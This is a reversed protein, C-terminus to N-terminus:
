KSHSTIFLSLGDTSRWWDVSVTAWRWWWLTNSLRVCWVVSSYLTQSALRRPRGVNTSFLWRETANVGHIFPPTDSQPQINPQITVNVALMYVGNSLPITGSCSQRQFNECLSVEYCVKNSKFQFFFLFIVFESKSGGKPSNPTVYVSWRYSTPFRMTSKRAIVAHKKSARVTSVNHASILRFRCKEYYSHTVIVAFWLTARYHTVTTLTIDRTLPLYRNEAMQPESVGSGISNFNPM